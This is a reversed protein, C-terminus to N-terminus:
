KLKNLANSKGKITGKCNASNCLCTFKQYLYDETTEYDMTIYDGVKIDKIARFECKSMDVKAVPNCSHLIKWMFYPDEVYLGENIQLTFISQTHRINGTFRFLIDGEYFDRVAVVGEGFHNSYVIEFNDKTPEYMFKEIDKPYFRNSVKQKSGLM